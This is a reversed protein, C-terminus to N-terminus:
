HGSPGHDTQEFVLETAAGHLAMRKGQVSGSWRVGEGTDSWSAEISLDQGALRYTGELHVHAGGRETHGLVKDSRDDFELELAPQGAAVKQVWTGALPHSGGCAALLLLPFLSLLRM